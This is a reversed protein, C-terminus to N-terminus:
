QCRNDLKKTLIKCGAGLYVFVTGAPVAGSPVGVYRTGASLCFNFYVREIMCKHFLLYLGNLVPVGPVICVCVCVCVCSSVNTFGFMYVCVRVCDYM